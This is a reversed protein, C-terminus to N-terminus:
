VFWSVFKLFLVGVCIFLVSVRCLIFWGSVSLMWLKLYMGCGSNLCLIYLVLVSM